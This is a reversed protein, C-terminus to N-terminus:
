KVLRWRGSKSAGLHGETTSDKTEIALALAEITRLHLNAMDEMNKHEDKIRGLYCRCMWFVVPLVLLLALWGAFHDPVSLAAAAGALATITKTTVLDRADGTCELRWGRRTNEQRRIWGCRSPSLLPNGARWPRGALPQRLTMVDGASGASSMKGM